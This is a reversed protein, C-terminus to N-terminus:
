SPSYHEVITVPTSRVILDYLEEVEENHLRPCGMSSYKGVTDPALTGHIGLDTPLGEEEPVLPMWRSGLENRPDGPPIAGAGPKHWTPDKEKNGIKYNGLTTDQGPKGLGVSYVKFIGEDDLLYLTCTSRELVVQFDKPSYKLNQGLRLRNPDDLGNARLLLGQTTNLKMGITTLNDGKQVRYVKSGPSPSQSFILQANIAGLGTAAERWDSSGWAGERTAERYLDRAELVEAQREKGRALGSLAPARFEPPASDAVKTYLALATAQDGSSELLRAYRIAAAPQGPANPFDESAKRLAELAGPVNGDQEEIDAQLLVAELLIRENKVRAIIPRILARAEVFAGKKVLERAQQMTTPASAEVTGGITDNLWDAFRIVGLAAAGVVLIVLVVKVLSPHKKSKAM